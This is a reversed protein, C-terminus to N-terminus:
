SHTNILHYIIVTFSKLKQKRNESNKFHTLSRYLYIPNFDFQMIFICINLSIHLSSFFIIFFTFSSLYLGLSDSDIINCILLVESNLQRMQRLLIIVKPPKITPRKHRLLTSHYPWRRILHM